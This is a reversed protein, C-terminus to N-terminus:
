RENTEKKLKEFKGKWGCECCECIDKECHITGEKKGCEPCYLFFYWGSLSTEYYEGWPGCFIM